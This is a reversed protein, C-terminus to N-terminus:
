PRPSPVPLWFTNEGPKLDAWAGPIPPAAPMRRQGAIDTSLETAALGPIKKLGCPSFGAPLNVILRGTARDLESTIPGAAVSAEDCGTSSNVACWIDRWRALDLPHKAVAWADATAAFGYLNGDFRRNAYKAHDAAPVTVVAKGAGALVNNYIGVDAATWTGSRAVDFPWDIAAVASEVWRAEQDPDDLLDMLEDSFEVRINEAM